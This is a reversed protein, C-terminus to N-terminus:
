SAEGAPGQASYSSQTAQENGAGSRQPEAEHHNSRVEVELSKADLIRKQEDMARQVHRIAEVIADAERHRAQIRLWYKVDYLCVLVNEYKDSVDVLNNKVLKIM